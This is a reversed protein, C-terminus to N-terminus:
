PLAKIEDTTTFALVGQQAAVPVIVDAESFEGGIGTDFQDIAAEAAIGQHTAGTSGHPIEGGGLQPINAGDIATSPM